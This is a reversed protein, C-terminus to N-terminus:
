LYQFIAKGCIESELFILTFFTEFIMLPYYIIFKGVPTKKSLFRLPKFKSLNHRCQQCHLFTLRKIFLLSYSLLTKHSQRAQRRLLTRFTTFSLKSFVGM